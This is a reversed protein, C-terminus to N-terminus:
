PRQRRPPDTAKVPSSARPAVPMARGFGRGSSTACVEPTTTGPSAPSMVTLGSPLIKTVTLWSVTRCHLMTVPRSAPGGSAPPPGTWETANLLSPLSSATAPSLRTESHSGAVPCCALGGSVPGAPGTRETTKLGV